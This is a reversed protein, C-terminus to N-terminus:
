LNDLSKEALMLRKRKELMRQLFTITYFALILYITNKNFIGQFVLRISELPNILYLLITAVVGALLAIYLPKNLRIVLIISLFILILKIIDM